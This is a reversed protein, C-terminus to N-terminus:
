LLNEGLDESVRDCELSRRLRSWAGVGVQPKRNDCASRQAPLHCQTQGRGGACPERLLKKLFRLWRGNHRRTLVFFREFFEKALNGPLGSSSEGWSRSAFYLKM